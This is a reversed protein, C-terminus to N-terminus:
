YINIEPIHPNGTPKNNYETFIQKTSTETVSFVNYGEDLNETYTFQVIANDKHAHYKDEKYVYVGVGICICLVIVAVLIFIYNVNDVNIFKERNKKIEQDKKIKKPM